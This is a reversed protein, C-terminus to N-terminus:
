CSNHYITDGVVKICDGNRFKLRCGPCKAENFNIKPIEIKFDDHANISLPANRDSEIKEVCTLLDKDIIFTILDIILRIIVMWRVYTIATSQIQYCQESRYILVIAGWITFIQSFLLASYNMFVYKIEVFLLILSIIIFAIMITMLWYYINVDCINWERNENDANMTKGGFLFSLLISISVFSHLM